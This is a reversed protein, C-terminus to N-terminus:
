TSSIKKFGAYKRLVKPVIVSGDKEQYNEIIAILIRGLAFGTADNMHVFEVGGDKRKVKTGLRRSQYDTMLDSTHTERYQNQGPMWTEIDIQRTDPGGMDGTCIAVVQYPLNLSQMLYEQIAVIFDQEKRSNELVTFSEIELKDFQHVRLIGHTDKGYSGSERRFASSFGLYRIPLKDEELTEGMHMPGLAHEASGILYLDDKPLHYREEEQGPDLRAMKKFVEPKIMVPPLVPIFPKVSYNKDINKVIKKLTKESTLVDFVYKVIAMELLVAGGKLYNFRAGSVKAATEVDIIGLAEGLAMHDKAEFDFKRPEGWKRIVQNGTEDKGAPVDADPLNPIKIWAIERDKELVALQAELSKIEEKNKKAAEIDRAESLKKQLGRKEEIAKLSVRWKEDLSLFDDVKKPDVNKKAIEKKVKEPENRLLNIDLM